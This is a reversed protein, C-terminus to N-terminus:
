AKRNRRYMISIGILISVIGAVIPLPNAQEGTQPLVKGTSPSEDTELVNSNNAAGSDNPKTTNGTQNM